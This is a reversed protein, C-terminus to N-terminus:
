KGAKKNNNTLVPQEGEQEQVIATTLINEICMRQKYADHTTKM